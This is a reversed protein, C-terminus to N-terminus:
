EECTPLRILCIKNLAYAFYCHWLEDYLDSTIFWIENTQTADNMAIVKCVPSHTHKCCREVNMMSLVSDMAVTSSAMLFSFSSSELSLIHVCSISSCTVSLDMLSRSQSVLTLTILYFFDFTVRNVKKIWTGPRITLTKNTCPVTKRCLASDKEVSTM